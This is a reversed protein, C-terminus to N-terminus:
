YYPSICPKRYGSNSMFSNDEMRYTKYKAFCWNYHANASGTAQNKKNANALAAGAILGGVIGIAAATGANMGKPGPAPPNPKAPPAKFNGPKCLWPKTACIGPGQPNFVLNKPPQANANTVPVIGSVLLTAATAVSAVTNKVSITKMIKKGKRHRQTAANPLLYAIGCFVHTRDTVLHSLDRKEPSRGM